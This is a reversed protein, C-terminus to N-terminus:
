DAAMHGGDVVLCTGTIWASEPSALFMVANAIDEPTGFRHLPIKALYADRRVPDRDLASAFETAIMGPAVANVRIGDQAWDIAMSKTLQGLGAKAAGYAPVLPQGFFITLSLNNIVSSGGSMTSAALLPRCAAAVRYNGLLDVGVVEDFVETEWENRGGPRSQGANNVLVDLADLDAALGAIEDANALRCRRYRFRSLDRDYDAAGARTGTITVDAGASAFASAIGLGIGATGGTVLVRTSSFEFIM